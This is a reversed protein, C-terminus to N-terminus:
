SDEVRKTLNSASFRRYQNAKVTGEGGARRHMPRFQRQRGPEPRRMHHRGMGVAHRRSLQFVLEADGVLRSPKQRLLQPARHDIGVAVKEFSDNFHILRFNGKADAVGKELGPGGPLDEDRARDLHDIAGCALGLRSSSAPFVEIRAGTAQAERRDGVIGGIRDLGEHAGVHLRPRRQEGVAM